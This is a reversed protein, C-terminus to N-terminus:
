KQERWKKKYCHEDWVLSAVIAGVVLVVIAAIMGFVYYGGYNDGVWGCAYLFIFLLILLGPASLFLRWLGGVISVVGFLILGFIVFAPV